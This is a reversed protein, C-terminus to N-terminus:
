PPGGPLAAPAALEFRGKGARKAAYMAADARATLAGLDEPRGPDYVAVGISVALPAAPDASLSHLMASAALFERAKREAVAADSDELWVAFEDGGFRAVLDTPRTRQGLMDAVTVLVEDGQAHGFRDNVKKFNDLDLYFLAGRRGARTLRRVRRELDELFARRNLVGTLPDTRSMAMIAEYRAIQANAIGVQGAVDRILLHEDESWPGRRATRWVVVAGNLCGDHGTGMVLIRHGDDVAQWPSTPDPVTEPLASAPPGGDEPGFAGGVILDGMACPRWDGCGSEGVRPCRLVRCGSAGVGHALAEAAAALMVEVDLQDRFTRIVHARVRDRTHARRMALDEARQRTVDRCVGRAGLWAGEPGLVPLASVLLCAPRGGSDRAWVEAERIPVRAGFVRGAADAEIPDLLARPDTGILARGPRGLAGEPSVFVFRGDAATEWAFDCALEAFDKYRARSEVLADRLSTELSTDQALLAVRAAGQVPLLTVALSRVGGSDSAGDTADATVTRQTPVRTQLVSRVASLLGNAVGSALVAGLCAALANGAVIEGAATVVAAPGDYALLSDLGVGAAPETGAPDAAGGSGPGLGPPAQDHASDM